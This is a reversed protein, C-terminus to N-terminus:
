RYLNWVEPLVDSGGSEYKDQETTGALSCVLRLLLRVATNLDVSAPRLKLAM